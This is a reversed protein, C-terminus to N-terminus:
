KILLVWISRQNLYLLFAFKQHPFNMVGLTKQFTKFLPFLIYFSACWYIKDQLKLFIVLSLGIIIKPTKSSKLDPTMILVFTLPVVCKLTIQESHENPIM